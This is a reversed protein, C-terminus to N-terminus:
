EKEKSYREFIDGFLRNYLQEFGEESEGEGFHTFFTSLLEGKPLKHVGYYFEINWIYDDIRYVGYRKLADVIEEEPELNKELLKDIIIRRKLIVGGHEKIMATGSLLEKFLHQANGDYGTAMSFENTDMYEEPNFTPTEEGNILWKIEKNERYEPRILSMAIDKFSDIVGERDMQYTKRVSGKGIHM